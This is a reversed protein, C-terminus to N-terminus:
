GSSIITRPVLCSSDSPLSLSHRVIPQPSTSFLASVQPQFCQCCLVNPLTCLVLQHCLVIGSYSHKQQGQERKAGKECSNGAPPCELGQFAPSNARYLEAHKCYSRQQGQAAAVAMANYLLLAPKANSICRQSTMSNAANSSTYRCGGNCLSAFSRTRCEFQM